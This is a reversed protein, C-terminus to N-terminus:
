PDRQLSVNMGRVVVSIAQPPAVSRGPYEVTVKVGGFRYEAKALFSRAPDSFLTQRGDALIWGGDEGLMAEGGGSVENGPAGSLIRGFSVSELAIRSDKNLRALDAMPGRTISIVNGDNVLFAVAGGMPEYLGLKESYPSAANVGIIFPMPERGASRAIGSFSATVPFAAEEAICAFFARAQAAESDKLLTNSSACGSALVALAALLLAWVRAKRGTM